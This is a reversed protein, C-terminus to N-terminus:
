FAAVRQLKRSKFFSHRGVGSSPRKSGSGGFPLKNEQGDEEDVEWRTPACKEKIVRTATQWSFRLINPYGFVHDANTQLWLKTDPDAPYGSGLAGLMALGPEALKCDKMSQDRTVKAVISAASVIPFISDAKSCVTFAPGPFRAELRAKHKDADGVTDVFVEVLRVGLDLARQILAFTSENALANLSEREPALMRSSIDAASLAEVHAGLWPTAAILEFLKDRREENLTKSDAFGLTRLEEKREVACFAAGYVMPGLVPGRGAEDIGLCCPRGDAWEAATEEAEAREGGM